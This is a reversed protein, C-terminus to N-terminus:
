VMFRNCNELLFVIIFAFVTTCVNRNVRQAFLIVGIVYLFSEIM